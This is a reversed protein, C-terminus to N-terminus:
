LRPQLCGLMFVGILAGAISPAFAIRKRRNVEQYRVWGLKAFLTHLAGFIFMLIAFPLACSLGVWLFAVALMKLDGGGMLNQSYFYLMVAFMFLAFGINWHLTIWRGSVLAHLFFLGALVLVLENRVKYETLDTFAAYLLAGATVVLVVQSFAALVLM